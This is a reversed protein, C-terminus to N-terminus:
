ERSEGATGWWRERGKMRGEGGAELGEKKEGRGEEECEGDREERWGGEM